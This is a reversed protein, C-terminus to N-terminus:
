KKITEEYIGKQEKYWQEWAQVRATCEHYKGYNKTVTSLLDSLKESPMATDLEPCTGVKPSDPWKPYQPPITNCGALLVACLIINWKM